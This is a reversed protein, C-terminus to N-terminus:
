LPFFRLLLLVYIIVPMFLSSVRLAGAVFTPQM